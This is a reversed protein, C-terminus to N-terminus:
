KSKRRRKLFNVPRKKNRRISQHRWWDGCELPSMDPHLDHFIRIVEYKDMVKKVLSYTAKGRNNLTPLSLFYTIEEKKFNIRPQTQMYKALEMAVVRLPWEAKFPLLKSALRAPPITSPVMKAHKHSM